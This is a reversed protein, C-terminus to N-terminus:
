SLTKSLKDTAWVPSSSPLGAEAKCLVPTVATWGMGAEKREMKYIAKESQQKRQQVSANSNSIM